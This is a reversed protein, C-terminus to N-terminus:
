RAQIGKRREALPGANHDLGANSNGPLAQLPAPPAPPAATGADVSPLPLECWFDSGQGPTGRANLTGGLLQVLRQATALGLGARREGQVPAGAAPADVEAAGPELLSDRQRPTLGIGTDHVSLRWQQPGTRAIRLTVSGAPTFKVANSLLLNIVQSLRLPDGSVLTGRGTDEVELHLVVGKLLAQPEFLAICDRGLRALDVEVPELLPKGAAANSFDLVEDVVGLLLRGTREIIQAQQRQAPQLPSELLRQAMGLLGHLPTRVEHSLNGLLRSKEAAAAEAAARAADLQRLASRRRRLLVHLKLTMAAIAVDLLLVGLASIWATQRWHGLMLSERTTTSVALPFGEVVHVAVMRPLTDGPDAIRPASTSVTAASRGQARADALARMSPAERYSLGLAEPRPPHRALLTGDSRLLLIASDEESLNIGRYFREFYSSQIGALALGIPQGSPARIKRALYFTWRGSGRNKVPASVYLTLAPDALHAQYYDRDALSISPAPFSRSFSLVEGDLAVLTAVDLLPLEAARERMFNFVSQTRAVERLRAESDVGLGQVHDVISGLAYDASRLTQSAHEAATASFSEMYHRWTTLSDERARWLLLAAAVTLAVILLAGLVLVLPERRAADPM